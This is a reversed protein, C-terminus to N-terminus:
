PNDQKGQKAVALNAALQANNPNIRLGKEGAEIAKDWQKLVNYAACINNYALDYDPKLKLAEEAAKICMEYKGAYYYQLSLNLYNEPTPNNSAALIAQDLSPQHTNGMTNDPIAELEKQLRILEVHNPSVKLGDAVLKKAEPIRNQGKLWNAYYFYSGPLYANLSLAHKFNAEAEAPNNTAGHLVGLNIYIYPYFPWLQKARNYYDLAEAFRAKQMLANGYNMLGRANNPSKITVDYWLSEGSSWVKNRTRVGFTHAVLFVLPVLLCALSLASRSVIREEHRIVMLALAWTAAMCLGIYPFFVRHDNLVEAFPFISSTPMLALFFWLIGFAVPRTHQKKSTVFALTLMGAVFLIGGLVREDFFNRIVAWDTDASLNFPFIFNLVYHVMVPAQTQLYHWRNGGGSTWLPPTMKQSLWFLLVGAVLAPLLVLLTRLSRSIGTGLAERLSMRHEFLIIYIFLLPIFMLAPEKVFFGFIVPILFVFFKRWQPKRQYIVFALVIMLTSFSDSRAIIYNITEANATHLMFFATAFLAFYKNWRHEVSLNFIRYTMLFLLMGLIVYSIFISLHFYFPQPMAKGGMWHDIANLTTLGPRYAQNAPLSSTTTADTFFKPINGLDRIYQNSVITHDDDFHFPNHFHNSYAFLLLAFVLASLLIFEPSLLRNDESRIGFVKRLNQTFNSLANM